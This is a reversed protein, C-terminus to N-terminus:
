AREYAATKSKNMEKKKIEEKTIVRMKANAIIDARGREPNFGLRSDQAIKVIEDIDRRITHLATKGSKHLNLRNKSYDTIVKLAAGHFAAENLNKFEMLGKVQRRIKDVRNPSVNGTKEIEKLTCIAEQSNQGIMQVAKAYPDRSESIINRCKTAEEITKQAIANRDEITSELGLRDYMAFRWGAASINTM